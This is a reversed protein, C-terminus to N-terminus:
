GASKYDAAFMCSAPIIRSGTTGIELIGKQGVNVVGNCYLGYVIANDTLYQEVAQINADSADAMVEDVLGYLTNDKCFNVGGNQYSAPSYCFSYYSAVHGTNASKLDIMLDWVTPDNKYSSFLAAEVALNEVNIGIAGLQSIIVSRVSDNYISASSLLRITVEGPAYGAAKLYEAAKEPNYSFYDRDDWTKQYGAYDQAVGSSLARANLSNNGSAIILQEPDIAYFIAKRLELNSGLINDAEMNPFLSHVFTLPSVNVCWGDKPQNSAFDYFLDLDSAGVGAIDVENNELAIVRMSAETVATVVIEKVNRFAPAVLANMAEDNQWYADNAVLTTSSGSLFEKVTYPGPCAPNNQKEEDSAGEWWKQNVIYMRESTVVMSFTNPADNTMEMIMNYDDIKEMSKINAGGDM